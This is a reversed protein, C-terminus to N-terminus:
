PQICTNQQLKTQIKQLGQSVLLSAKKSAFLKTRLSDIQNYLDDGIIFRVTESDLQFAEKGFSRFGFLTYININHEKLHLLFSPTIGAMHELYKDLTLNNERCFSLIFQLSSQINILQENSDPDLTILKKQYLTYAKVAKLSNYYGLDFYNEDAYLSYPATFFEEPKIHKFRSFFLSLKKLQLIKEADLNSFDKRYKFPQNLRQRSTRLHINYLNKDFDTLEEIDLM